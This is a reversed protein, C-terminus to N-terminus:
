NFICFWYWNHLCNWHFMGWYWFEIKVRQGSSTEGRYFLMVLNEVAAV